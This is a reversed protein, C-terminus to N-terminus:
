VWVMGVQLTHQHRFAVAAKLAEDRSSYQRVWFHKSLSVLASCDDPTYIQVRARFARGDPTESVGTEKSDVKFKHCKRANNQFLRYRPLLNSKSNNTRDCDIHECTEKPFLERGLFCELALRGLCKDV